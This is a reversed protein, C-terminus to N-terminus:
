QITSLLKVIENYTPVLESYDDNTNKELNIDHEYDSKLQILINKILNRDNLVINLFSDSDGQLKTDYQYEPDDVIDKIADM